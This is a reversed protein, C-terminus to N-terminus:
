LVLLFRLLKTMPKLRLMLYNSKGCNSYERFWTLWVGWRQKAERSAHEITEAEFGIGALLTMLKGNCRGIDIRCTKGSVITECAEDLTDPIGLASAFANATGRPIVGLPITTEGLARAAESLTGDGGAAIIIEFDKKVAEEALKYAGSKKQLLNM